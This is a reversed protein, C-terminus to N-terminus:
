APALEGAALASRADADAIEIVVNGRKRGSEVYRHAAATEALPFTKDIVPRIAGAAALAAVESQVDKKATNMSRVSVYRGDPKLVKRADAKRIKGVADFVVDFIPGAATFDECRYDITRAAGLSRVLEANGASAVGVVDAGLHRAIQVAYTGVSGSAGYILVNDGLQTGALKLFHLASMAGVPLAAAEAFTLGAPKPAIAGGPWSEPLCVYEANAGTRLGSTTGFVEDGPQFRTVNRGVAEVVGAFEHGPIRKRPFGAFRLLLSLPFRAGRILVDGATVTSAHVKILVEGEAPAPKPIERLQLVNPSGARTCMIAKM